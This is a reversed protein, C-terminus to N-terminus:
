SYQIQDVQITLAHWTARADTYNEAARFFMQRAFQVKWSTTLWPKQRSCGLSNNRKYRTFYAAVMSRNSTFYNIAFQRGM